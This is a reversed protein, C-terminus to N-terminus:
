GGSSSKEDDLEIEAVKPVAERVGDEQGGRSLTASKRKIRRISM